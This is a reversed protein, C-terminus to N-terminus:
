KYEDIKRKIENTATENWNILTDRIGGNGNYVTWFAQDVARSVYYSGPIERVERVYSLEKTIVKLNDKDWAMQKLASVNSSTIRSVVGLVSEINNNYRLQTDDSTWWKLFEWAEEKKESSKLIACGTGSGAVTRNIKGDTKIGPVLAIQWKGKIEPAAEELMTCVTYPSIGLPMLGARFRNYFSAATPFKYQTYMDSWFTFADVAVDTELATANLESNYLDGGYQMLITPFLNLAGIGADVTTAATIQTYPIYAGLNNRQLVATCELFEEWTEPVSLGLEQFIDTRYYMVDFAETDPLAYVGDNYEYPLCATESFRSKIENFDSFKSLDVLAGRMALNVPETRALNIALDPAANSVIGKVLTANTTKLDVKIGTKATFSENILSNLIQSQDRGWNIWIEIGKEDSKKDYGSSFSYIFRKLTFATQKFWNVNDGNYNDQPSSLCIKDLSLPMEKFEYLWSGLTSYNSFYDSVYLTADYKNSLMQDVVRKMNTISSLYSNGRTGTVKKLGDSVKELRESISKLTNEFDPIKNFLEYDRNKDPSEGTIMVIDIYLDGIIKNVSELEAYFETLEGLTVTLSLTHKGKSLYFLYPENKDGFTYYQWGSGYYFGLNCCEEFPIGGDIRLIRYSYGNIVTAQKYSFGIKYLADEPVELEWVIEEGQTKWNSAGIYNLKNSYPSAPSVRASSTDAKAIISRSNKYVPNEAETKLKDSNYEKYGNKEYYSKVDSYAKVVEPATLYVSAIQIDTSFNEFALTHTGAGIGFLYAETLIGDYDHLVESYNCAAVKQEASFENGNDDIRKEGDDTWMCSITMDSCKTFTTKGDLLIGFKINGSTKESISYEVKINYLAAESVSFTFRNSETETGKIDAGSYKDSSLGSLYTGYDAYGDIESYYYDTEKKATNEAAATFPCVAIISIFLFIVSNRIGKSKM